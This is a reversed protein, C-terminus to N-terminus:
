FFFNSNILSCISPRYFDMDDKGNNEANVFLDAGYPSRLLTDIVLLSQGRMIAVHLPTCGNNDKISLDLQYKLLATIVEVNAPNQLALHLATEGNENRM